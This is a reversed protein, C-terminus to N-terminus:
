KLIPPPNQEHWIRDLMARQEETLPRDKLWREMGEYDGHFTAVARCIRQFVVYATPKGGESSRPNHRAAYGM